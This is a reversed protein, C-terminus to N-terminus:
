CCVSFGSIPESDRNSGVGGANSTGTVPTGTPIDGHRITHFFSFPTDVRLHFFKSSINIRKHVFTDSLCVSVCVGCSLMPRAQLADRPLFQNASGM